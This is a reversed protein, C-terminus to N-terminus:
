GRRTLFALPLTIDSVHDEDDVVVDVVAANRDIREAERDHVEPLILREDRVIPRAGLASSTISALLADSAAMRTSASRKTTASWSRNRAGYRDSMRSRYRVTIAAASPTVYAFTNAQM